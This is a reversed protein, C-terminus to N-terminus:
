VMPQTLKEGFGLIYPINLFNFIAVILPYGVGKVLTMSGYEGLWNGKIISFAKSIQMIDDYQTGPVFYVMLGNTLMIRLITALVAVAILWKKDIKISKFM